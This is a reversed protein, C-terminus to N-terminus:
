FADDYADAVLVTGDGGEFFSVVGLRVVGEDMVLVGGVFCKTAFHFPEGFDDFPFAYLNESGPTYGAYVLYKGSIDREDDFVLHYACVDDGVTLGFHLGVVVNNGFYVGGLDDGRGLVYVDFTPVHDDDLVLYEEPHVQRRVVALVSHCARVLVGYPKQFVEEGVFFDYGELEDFVVRIGVGAHKVEVARELRHPCVLADKERPSETMRFIPLEQHVEVAYLVAADDIAFLEEIHVGIYETKRGLLDNNVLGKGSKPTPELPAPHLTDGDRVALDALQATKKSAGGM